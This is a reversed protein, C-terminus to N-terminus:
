RPSAGGRRGLFFTIGGGVVANPVMMLVILTILEAIGLPGASGEGGGAGAGAGGGNTLLALGIFLIGAVIIGFVAFGVANAIASNGVRERLTGTGTEATAYGIFAAIVPGSLVAFALIVMSLIGSILGGGEEGAGFQLLLIVGLLGLGLGIIAYYKISQVILSTDIVLGGNAQNETAM